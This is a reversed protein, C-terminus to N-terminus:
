RIISALNLAALSELRLDAESLDQVVTVRNPVAVTFMGAAKAARVGNLSDECVVCERPPAGLAAATLLFVEPSPKVQVVDDRTRVADVADAMGLRALHGGVWSLPSSSAVGVRWGLDRAQHIAAHVGPMLPESAVREAKRRLREALLVAVDGLPRDSRERLTEVPDFGRDSGVRAAWEPLYLEAGHARYVEKWALFSPWETDVMLGDFDLILAAM